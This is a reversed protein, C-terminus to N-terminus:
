PHVTLAAAAADAPLVPFGGIAGDGLFAVSARVPSGSDLRYVTGPTLAVTAVGGADVTVRQEAGGGSVPELTVQAPGATAALVLLPSPGDPVAVLAPKDLVDAPTNWVFDANEGLGTAQWVAAVVPVEARVTVVYSGAALGALDVEAPRDAEVPVDRRLVEAGTQDQVAIDVSGALGPSLLRLLTTAGADAADVASQAVQVGPIVHTNAAGAVMGSQDVGGPLLTRTISSQLAAAVPAGAATVRVVPAEEGVGLAALPVIRQTRAAVVLDAGGPPLTLGTAGYLSLDVTAVVDSPNSLLILDGSGTTTSGGVLWSEIRTPQCASAAFGRIDDAAVSASGSAAADSRSGNEPNATVVTAGESGAVGPVSASTSIDADAGVSASVVDSTAAATLGGAQTADRALAILPGACSLVTDAPTPTVEVSLPAREHTPWPAAVGIGVVLVIGAAGAAGVVLRTSTAAWSIWTRRKM